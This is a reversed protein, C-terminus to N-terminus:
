RADRDKLISTQDLDDADVIQTNANSQTGVLGDAKLANQEKPIRGLLFLVQGLERGTVVGAARESQSNLHNILMQHKHSLTHKRGPSCMAAKQRVSGALPESAAEM